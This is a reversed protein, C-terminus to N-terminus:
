EEFPSDCQLSSSVGSGKRSCVMSANRLSTSVTASAAQDTPLYPLIPVYVRIGMHLRGNLYGVSREVLGAPDCGAFAGRQAGQDFFPQPMRQRRPARRLRPEP